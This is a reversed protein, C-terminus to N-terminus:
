NFEQLIANIIIQHQEEVTITATGDGSQAGYDGFQAHNGGEITIETFNAPLHSINSNYKNWNLVEDNSAVISVVKMNNPIQKTSYAALLALGDITSGHNSAYMAAVAGGLSHGSIYWHDYNYANIIANAKNIGLIAIRLPMKVLFCDIGLDALNYMIEAYAKEDVKAGQYFILAKDTGPGDFFYYSSKETVIVTDTSQMYTLANSTAQYYNAISYIWNVVNSSFSNFANSLNGFISNNEFNDLSAYLDDIIKNDRKIVRANAFTFALVTTFLINLFKM